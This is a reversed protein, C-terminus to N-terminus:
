MSIESHVTDSSTPRAADNTSVISRAVDAMPRSPDLVRNEAQRQEWEGRSVARMIVTGNPALNFVIVDEQEFTVHWNKVSDIAHSPIQGQDLAQPLETGLVTM